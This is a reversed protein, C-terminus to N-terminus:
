NAPTKPPLSIQRLLYTKSSLRRPAAQALEQWNPEVGQESDAQGGFVAASEGLLRVHNAAGHEVAGSPSAALQGPDEQHRGAPSRDQALTSIQAGELLM